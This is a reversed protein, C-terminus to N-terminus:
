HDGEAWHCECPLVIDEDLAATDALGFQTGGGGEGGSCEETTGVADESPADEAVLTFRRRNLHSLQSPQWRHARLQKTHFSMLANAAVTISAM